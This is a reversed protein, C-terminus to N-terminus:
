GEVEIVHFEYAWREGGDWKPFLKRFTEEFEDPLYGGEAKADEESIPFYKIPHLISKQNVGGNEIIKKWKLPLEQWKKDIVMRYGEVGKKTRKPQIAYDKGVQYKDSLRTTRTKSSDLMMDFHKKGEQNVGSFIM